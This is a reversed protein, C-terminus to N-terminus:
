KIRELKYVYQRRENAFAKRRSFSIQNSKLYYTINYPNTHFTDALEKATFEDAERDIMGLEQKIEALLEQRNIEM